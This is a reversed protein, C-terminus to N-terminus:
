GIKIDYKEMLFEDIEDSNNMKLLANEEKTTLDCVGFNKIYNKAVAFYNGSYPKSTTQIYFWFIKSMLIKQLIFLDKKSDSLIAYGDYFLLDKDETFVFCPENTIYPLLLKYGTVTLAQNRGYAYWRIYKKNGKDRKSLIEKQSLLYKYAFPYNSKMIQEDLIQPVRKKESFLNEDSTIIEYPFILKKIHETIETESKLTNPKIVNRCIGKEIKYEQKDKEFFFYDEIERIPKFVYVNNKLTAFGNRIEFKEDLTIGTNEIKSIIERINESILHWGNLDNLKSYLVTIYDKQKITKINKSKCKIYKVKSSPSKGIICICTYTSRNKFLQEGGFDIMTIDFTNKSFYNRVSRGNASKYFTNVTIYGLVGKSNLNEMAIEFFPIYLDSKGSASVSWKKLLLKSESDIKSSSIYPPNGVIIDFGANEKIELVSNWDFDLSNGQYLNFDFIRKDEGNIIAHLSLLIKTREISYNQIDVGFISEKYIKYYSKKTESKLKDVITIFFGGCGCAIDGFKANTFDGGQKKYKNISNLVIFERIYKPTFVAGNVEKDAPSIVFEFFEILEEIDFTSKDFLKIFDNVQELEKEKSIIFEKIFRNEVNKINNVVLFSSVLLRNVDKTDYSYDKLYKLISQNM